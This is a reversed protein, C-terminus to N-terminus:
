LINKFHKFIKLSVNETPSSYFFLPVIILTDWKYEDQLTYWYKGGENSATKRKQQLCSHQCASLLLLKTASMADSLVCVIQWKENGPPNLIDRPYQSRLGNWDKAAMKSQSVFKAELSYWDSALCCSLTWFYSTIVMDTTQLLHHPLLCVFGLLLAVFCM